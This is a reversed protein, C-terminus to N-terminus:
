AAAHPARLTVQDSVLPVGHDRPRIRRVHESAHAQLGFVVPVHHMEKPLRHLGEHPEHHLAVVHLLRGGRAGHLKERVVLVRPVGERVVLHRGWQGRM